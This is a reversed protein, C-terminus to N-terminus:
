VVAENFFLMFNKVIISHANCYANDFFINVIDNSSSRLSYFVFM